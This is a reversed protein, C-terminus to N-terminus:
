NIFVPLAVVFETRGPVSSFTITGNHAEIIRKCIDLGLGMGEGQKKTTFFPDFIRDSIEPPIGNGSDIVSVLAQGDRIETRLILEGTFDMAQAANRILNIWVQGLADSSGLVRVDTFERRIHIGYKLMNHMLVLINELDRVIDVVQDSGQEDPTLYSRLAAIVGAAKKGAVFIIEAMRRAIIANNAITIININKETHLMDSFDRYKDAIGIDMLADAVEAFNPVADHELLSRFDRGPKINSVPFELILSRKMGYELVKDFLRRQSADLSPIFDILAQQKQDLFDILTGNSSIIAGLPTNLEHAIGASLQGLASLKESEILLNQAQQLEQLSNELKATREQVRQELLSNSEKLERNTTLIKSAMDNMMYILLNVDAYETIPIKRDYQGAAITNIGVIISTIPRQMRDRIIFRNALLNAIIVALLMCLAIMTLWKRTGTIETDNFYLSITGVHINNVTITRTIRPIIQSEVKPPQDILMGSATSELVVGSVRGSSLLVDGIQIAQLDNINYLPDKLFECTEDVTIIAKRKLDTIMSNSIILTSAIQVTIIILTSIVLSLFQIEKLLERRNGLSPNNTDTKM